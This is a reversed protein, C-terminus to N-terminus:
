YAPFSITCQAKRLKRIYMKCLDSVDPTSITLSVEIERIERIYYSGVISNLFLDKFVLPSRDKGGEVCFLFLFM